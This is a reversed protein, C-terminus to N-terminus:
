TSIRKQFLIAPNFSSSDFCRNEGVVNPITSSLSRLAAQAIYNIIPQIPLRARTQQPRKLQPYILRIIATWFSQLLSPDNAPHFSCSFRILDFVFYVDVQSANFHLLMPCLLILFSSQHSFKAPENSDSLSPFMDEKSPRLFISSAEPGKYFTKKIRQIIMVVQSWWKLTSPTADNPGCTKKLYILMECLPM